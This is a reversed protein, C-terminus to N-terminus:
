TLKVVLFNIEKPHLNTRSTQPNDKGFVFYTREAPNVNLGGSSIGLKALTGEDKLGEISIGIHILRSGHNEAYGRIGTDKYETITVYCEKYLPHEITKPLENIAVLGNLGGFSDVIQKFRIGQNYFDLESQTTISITPNVSDADETKAEEKNANLEPNLGLKETQQVESQEDRTDSAIGILTMAVILIIALMLGIIVFKSGGRLPNNVNANDPM